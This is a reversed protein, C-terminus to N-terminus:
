PSGFFREISKEGASISSAKQLHENRIRNAFPIIGGFINTSCPFNSDSWGHFISTNVWGAASKAAAVSTERGATFSQQASGPFNRRYLSSVM